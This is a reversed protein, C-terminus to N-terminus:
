RPPALVFAEIRSPRDGGHHVTLRVPRFAAADFPREGTNPNRDYKPFNGGSVDLRLRTGRELRIATGALDIVAEVTGEIRDLRLIGDEINRASGDPRVALLKATVDASPGSAELFLVARLPGVVMMDDPIPESLFRLVDERVDLPRQDRPGGTEPFFHSNAGGLTPMPNNPDYEFSDAGGGGPADALHAAPALYWHRPTAASPPWRDFARWRNEGMIFLRVPPGELPRRKFQADLWERTWRAVSDTTMHAQPGYEEEGVKTWGSLLGNHAWPGVILRQPAGGAALLAYAALTHRNTYDNWGGVHLVPATVRGYPFPQAGFERIAEAGQFLQSLPATRFIGDWAAAPPMERRLGYVLFWPLHLGMHFAGGPALFPGLDAWTNIAVVAKVAPQGLQAVQFATYGHYSIGWVAVRGDSWPQALLWELTARGDATEHVFPIFQGQSRGTGRVDQLVVAYGAPLLADALWRHAGADYPTRVLLTPYAADGPPRFVLTHLVAGDPAPVAATDPAFRQTSAPPAAIAIALVGLVVPRISLRM